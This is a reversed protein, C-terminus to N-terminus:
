DNESSVFEFLDRIEDPSLIWHIEPMASISNDTEYGETIVASPDVLSQLMEQKSRRDKLDDLPPGAVGGRGQRTHCRQCQAVPHDSFIERGRNRDGGAFAWRYNGWREEDNGELLQAARASLDESSSMGAALLVDLHLEPELESKELADVWSALLSISSDVASGEEGIARIALQRVAMEGASDALDELASLRSSEDVEVREAEVILSAIDSSRARDRAWQSRGPHNQIIQDLAQIRFVVQQSEDQLIQENISLPLDVAHISAARQANGALEDSKALLALLPGEIAQRLAEMDRQSGGYPRITGRVLDRAGPEAWDAVADIALKRALVPIDERSALHVLAVAHKEDGHRLAADIVRRLYPLRHDGMSELAGPDAKAHILVRNALAPLADVVNLDHIARAAETAIQADEDALFLSVIPHVGPSRRPVDGGPHAFLFGAHHKKRLALLVALRVERDGSIAHNMLDEVTAAGALGM